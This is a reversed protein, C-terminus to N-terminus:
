SKHYHGYKLGSQYLAIINEVPIDDQLVPHGPSFIYGGGKMLSCTIRKVENEIDEVSGRSVIKQVSIGGRLCIHDGYEQKIHIPDMCEPQIPDLIDIGLEILRPIITEINGCSHLLIKINFQHALEIMRKLNPVIYIEFMEPSILLSHQMGFDDALAFISIKEGANEFMKRFYDYYFDAIKNFIFHAMLPQICMDMMLNDMGRIFTAHQFVSCGSAMICFNDWPVLRDKLSSFDFWEIKPWPYKELEDLTTAQALPPVPLEWLYGSSAKTEIEQLGWFSMINGAWENPFLDNKPGIYVPATGSHLDIGRMDYIDIGLANLLEKDSEVSLAAKLKNVVWKTANIHMPLRDAEQHEISKIVREKKNIETM